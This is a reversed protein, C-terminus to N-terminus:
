CNNTNALSCVEDKTKANTAGTLRYLINAPRAIAGCIMAVPVAVEDNELGIEIEVGVCVVECDNAVFESEGDGGKSSLAVGVKKDNSPM